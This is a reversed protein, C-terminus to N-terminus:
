FKNRNKSDDIECKLKEILSALLNREKALDDNDHEAQAGNNSMDLSDIIINNDGQEDPYTDNVFEPQKHHQRDNAFVNYNDDDQLKQLLEADFIPGSNDAVDIMMKYRKCHSLMLSPDLIILLMQLSRKFRHWTCIIHKWNRIKLNMMLTM